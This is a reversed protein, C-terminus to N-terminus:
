GKTIDPLLVVGSEGGSKAEEQRDDGALRLIEKAASLAVNPNGADILELLKEAAHNAKARYKLRRWRDEEALREELAKQFLESKKWRCVTEPAVDLSAAIHLDTYYGLAMLEICKMHKATLKKLQYKNIDKEAM